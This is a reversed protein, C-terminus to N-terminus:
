RCPFGSDVYGLIEEASCRDLVPRQAFCIAIRDLRDVLGGCLPEGASHLQRLRVLRERLACIVADTKPEGALPALEAALRHAEGNRINLAM